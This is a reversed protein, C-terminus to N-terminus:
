PVRLNIVTNLLSRWQNMYVAVHMWDVGKVRSGWYMNFNDEWRRRPRVFARAAEPKESLIHYANRMEGMSAVNGALIMRRSKIVQIINPSAYSKHLEGNHLRRLSGAV